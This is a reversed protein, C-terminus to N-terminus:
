DEQEVPGGKKALGPFSRRYRACTRFLSQLVTQNTLATARKIAVLNRKIITLQGPCIIRGLCTVATYFITCKVMRLTVGATKLLQLVEQVHTLHETTTKSYILVGYLHM